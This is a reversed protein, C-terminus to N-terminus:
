GEGLDEGLLAGVDRDPRNEAPDGVTERRACGRMGAREECARLPLSGSLPLAQGSSSGPTLPLPREFTGARGDALQYFLGPQVRRPNRRASRAPPDSLRIYNGCP